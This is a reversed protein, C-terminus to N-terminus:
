EQKPKTISCLIFVDTKEAPGKYNNKVCSYLSTSDDMAYSFAGPCQGKFYSAFNIAWRSPQCNQANAYQGRCCYQDTNFAVCASKCGIVKGKNSYKRLAAPCSPLLNTRCGAVGCRLPNYPSAVATLPSIKYKSDDSCTYPKTNNDYVYTFVDPCYTKFYKASNVPWQSIQCTKPTDYYGRCCYQDTNFEFCSSKCAVVQGSANKAKLANPCKLNLDNKCGAVGCRFRDRPDQAKNLPEIQVGLNYGHVLSVFYKDVGLGSVNLYFQAITMPPIGPGECQWKDCAGNQCNGIRACFHGSWIDAMFLQYAWNKTNCTQPTGYSGRCCYQDTNYALCSSKCAVTQGAGNKVRLGNPCNANLNNKCGAVGCRYKNITDQGKHVPRIQVGLNYGDVISVDYFDQGQDGKLTFEALTVPPVGGAGACQLKNGCDGTDCHGKGNGDFSCGTRAWFRGAWNDATTITRTIKYASDTCTYTSTTDDYAYSYANPCNSKFYTASNVAWNKTNCTQPTGYSGRCCYQDTNYALCSSKCAVTQGAGNKVRLGNPCNTNLNNKCGAVGCKYKNSADQGKNVPQIQVGLNYGDVLSVDYYDLGGYGSLTFEALTVPPVGGASSIVCHFIRPRVIIQVIEMIEEDSSSSSNMPKDIKNLQDEIRWRSFTDKSLYIDLWKHISLKDLSKGCLLMIRLKYFCKEGAALKFGGNNPAAKGSNGLSGIWITSGHSNQFTFQKSYVAGCTFTSTKDDYAYSYAKPCNSKFYSASNVPWSNTDCTEVSGYQGRCCYQDTNFALCSSKCGNNVRLENPCGPNLDNSCGAVRCAHGESSIGYIQIGVNFGDVLSVDYYDQGQDGNLIVEVLTAPAEGGAGACQLKNGCDGTECHGNGNEDFSCGTRVWFRGAWSDDTTVTVQQGADLQFGGNNPSPKGPNGLTGIWVTSGHDNIFNFDAPSVVGLVALLVVIRFMNNDRKSDYYDQGQDGNLTFEALTAPPEGGVGACELKNGCDGTECHGNGNEDFSCGTRAWFRGAWSDDTAVTVVM